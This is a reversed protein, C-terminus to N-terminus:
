RGRKGTSRRARALAAGTRRLAVGLLQHGAAPVVRRLAARVRRAARARVPRAPPPEDVPQPARVAPATGARAREARRAASRERTRRAAEARALAARQAAARKREPPEHETGVAVTLGRSGQTFYLAVPHGDLPADRDAVGDEGQWGLPLELRVRRRLGFASMEVYIDWRGPSLPHGPAVRAFDVTTTFEWRLEDRQTSTPLNWREKSSRELAYLVIRAEGVARDLQEPDVAGLLDLVARRSGDLGSGTLEGLSAGGRVVLDAGWWAASHLECRGEWRNEREALAVVRDLDGDVLARGVERTALPLQALVGPGFYAAATRHAALFLETREPEGRSLLGPGTHRKVMETQLWRRFVRNRLLGPDTHQVVVDLSERLNAFYAEWDITRFAANAGDDRRIHYYCTYDSYVAISEALLYSSVVFLHDELRRRGEPFRLHHQELFAKRFLKHPTLSDIIPSDALTAHPRSRLFLNHPVARGIGAMKGILVDAHHEVAYAHMRELAENGLWDDHDCFFVYQGRAADIGVNRPKGPWGSNEQHIVRLHPHKRAVRELLAPTEDTSGDDVFIAEFQDTPLSQALLGDICAQVYPGPNYVPIVVTVKVPSAGPGTGATAPEPLHAAPSCTAARVDTGRSTVRASLNGLQTAYLEPGEGKAAPPGAVPAPLRRVVRRGLGDLEVSLDVVVPGAPGPLDELTRRDLRVAGDFQLRSADEGDAPTLRPAGTACVSHDEPRDRRQLVLHLRATGLDQTLDVAVAPLPGLDVPPVWTVRDDAARFLVPSGDRYRLELSFKVLAAGDEVRVQHGVFAATLGNEARALDLLDDLRGERVLHERVRMTFELHEVTEPTFRSLTVERVATFIQERRAAGYGVMARGTLHALVKKGLWYAKIRDRYRGPETHRDVVDLVNNVAITFYDHPDFRGSSANAVGERKTWHYYPYDGYISVRAAAFYAQVNFQHDELRVKGSPFRIGERELLARRYVKHPTLLQLASDEDLRAEPVTQRFVFRGITRGVGVERAVVVDSCHQTAFAHVLELARPGLYDDHDVFAVFEGRACDLGVNRPTGPWGSNPIHRVVVHPRDRALADLREGTGDTSGDDVFVVEFDSSPMSQEDLSRVLEELADGTNYTPVIVSVKPDGRHVAADPGTV